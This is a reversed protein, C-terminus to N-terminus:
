INYCIYMYAYMYVHINYHIYTHKAIHINAIINSNGAALDLTNYLVIASSAGM